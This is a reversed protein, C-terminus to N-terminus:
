LERHWPSEKSYCMRCGCWASEPGLRRSRVMEPVSLLVGALSEALTFLVVFVSFGRGSATVPPARVTNGSVATDGHHAGASRLINSSADISTNLVPKGGPTGEHEASADSRSPRHRAAILDSINLSRRPGPKGCIILLVEVDGR